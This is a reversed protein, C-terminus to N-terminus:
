SQLCLLLCALIVEKQKLCATFGGSAQWLSTLILGLSLESRGYFWDVSTNCARRLCSSSAASIRFSLEWAKQCLRGRLFTLRERGSHCHETLREPSFKPPIHYFLDQMGARLLYLCCSWSNPAVQAGWVWIWFSVPWHRHLKVDQSMQSAQGM